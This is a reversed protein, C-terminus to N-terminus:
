RAPALSAVTAREGIACRADANRSTKQGSATVAAIHGHRSIGEMARFVHKHSEAYFDEEKLFSAVEVQIRTDLLLCGLLAQEAELSHPMDGMFNNTKKTTAM